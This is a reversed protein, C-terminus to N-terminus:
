PTEKSPNLTPPIEQVTEQTQPLGKMKDLRKKGVVALIAAIVAWVAAVILAAWGLDMVNGLAWTLALSLFLLVFFGGLAAAALMGAGAGAQKASTTAEAKALQIEQRMLTSLDETFHSFMEGLSETRARTEAESDPIQSSGAAPPTLPSGTAPDAGPSTYTPDNSPSSM